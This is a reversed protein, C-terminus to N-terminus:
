ATRVFYGVGRNTGTTLQSIQHGSVNMWTGSLSGAGTDITFYGSADFGFVARRLNSGAISVGDNVGGSNNKLALILTGVPYSSSSPIPQYKANGQATIAQATRLPTM